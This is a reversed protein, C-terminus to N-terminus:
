HLDVWAGNAYGQFKNTTSNYRITGNTATDGDNGVKISGAVELKTTPATTGIGVKGNDDIVMKVTPAADTANLTGFALGGDSYSTLGARFDMAKIFATSPQSGAANAGVASGFSIGAYYDGANTAANEATQINLINATAGNNGTIISTSLNSIAFTKVATGTGFTASFLNGTSGNTTLNLSGVNAADSGNYLRINSVINTGGPMLTVVANTNSSLAPAFRLGDVAFRGTDNSLLINSDDIKVKGKVTLKESAGAVGIGVNGTDEIFVNTTSARATVGDSLTALQKRTTGNVWEEKGVTNWITGNHYQLSSNNYRVMGAAPTADGSTDTSALKVYGNVDLKTAPTENGIGVNGNSIISMKISNNTGFHLPINNVNGIITGLPDIAGTKGTLLEFYGAMTTKGWRAAGTRNTGHALMTINGIDNRASLAAYSLGSLNKISLQNPISSYTEVEFNDSPTTTGIGVKGNSLFVLDNAAETATPTATTNDKAGDIHLATGTTPMTTGIGVQAYTTFSAAVLAATLFINKTKM